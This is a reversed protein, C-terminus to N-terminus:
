EDYSIENSLENVDNQKLPFFHKLKEGVALIGSIIGVDFQNQKFHFIMKDRISDWFDDPVLENIGKDGIIAFKRDEVALLILVGNRQETQHMKLKSFVAVSEEKPDNKCHSLLHLRIEGSTNSEAESIAEVIKTKQEETFFKKVGM